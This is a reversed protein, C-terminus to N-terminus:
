SGSTGPAANGSPAPSRTVSVSSPLETVPAHSALEFENVSSPASVSSAYLPINALARYTLSPRTFTM